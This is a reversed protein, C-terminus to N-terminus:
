RTDVGEQMADFIEDELLMIEQEIFNRTIDIVRPKGGPGIVSIEIRTIDIMAPLWQGEHQIPPLVEFTLELPLSM